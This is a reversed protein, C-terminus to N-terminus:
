KFNNGNTFSIIIKKMKHRCDINLSALYKILKTFDYPDATYTLNRILANIYLFHTLGKVKAHIVAKELANSNDSFIPIPHGSSTLSDDIAVGLEVPLLQLSLIFFILLILLSKYSRSQKINNSPHTTM